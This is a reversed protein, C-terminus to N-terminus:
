AVFLACALVVLGVAHSWRPNAIGLGPRARLRLFLAPLLVLFLLQHAENWGSDPPYFAAMLWITICILPWLSLFWVFRRDLGDDGLYLDRVAATLAKRPILQSIFLVGVVAVLNVVVHLLLTETGTWNVLRVPVM